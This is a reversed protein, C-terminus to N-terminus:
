TEVSISTCTSLGLAIVHMHQDVTTTQIMVVDGLFLIFYSLQILPPPPVGIWIVINGDDKFFRSSENSTVIIRVM